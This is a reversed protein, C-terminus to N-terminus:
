GGVAMWGAWYYPAAWEARARVKARATRLADAPADGAVLRRHFEALLAPAADEAAWRGLVLSGAGAALWAWEIAGTAAQGDRMAAAGGDSLVVTAAPVTLNMIERTELVGDDAPDDQRPAASALLAPSFLPSAANIRFPAALHLVGATGIVSRVQRETAATGSVVSALGGGEDKGYVAAVRTVEAQAATEARLTWDPATLLALGRVEPAIQPAVVALLSPAPRAIVNSGAIGAAVSGLYSVPRADGLYGEGLPLAEFPVRWLPGDPIVMVSQARAVRQLLEDPLVRVFEAADKKWAAEDQLVSPQALRALREALGQRTLPLTWAAHAVGDSTREASLAVLVDEDAVFEVLLTGAARSLLRNLDAAAPAPVLGRWTRLDPLRDFLRKRAQSRKAVADQLEATLKDLRAKDPKPLARQRSIQADLAILQAVATREDAREEPTM